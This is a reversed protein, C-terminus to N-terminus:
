FERVHVEITQQVSEKSGKLGLQQAKQSQGQNAKRSQRLVVGRAGQNVLQRGGTYGNM